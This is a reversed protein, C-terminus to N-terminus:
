EIEEIMWDYVDKPTEYSQIIKGLDNETRGTFYISYIFDALEEDSCRRIKDAVTM